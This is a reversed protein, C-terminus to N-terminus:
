TNSGVLFLIIITVLMINVIKSYQSTYSKFRQELKLGIDCEAFSDKAIDLTCTEGTVEQGMGEKAKALYIVAEKEYEILPMLISALSAGVGILLFASFKILFIGIDKM